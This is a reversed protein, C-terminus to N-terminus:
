GMQRMAFKLSWNCDLAPETSSGYPPSTRVDGFGNHQGSPFYLNISVVLKYYALTTLSNNYMANNEVQCTHLTLSDLMSGVVWPLSSSNIAYLKLSPTITVGDQPYFMHSHIFSGRVLHLTENQSLAVVTSGIDYDDSTDGSYDKIPIVRLDRYSWTFTKQYNHLNDEEIRNMDVSSVVNGAGWDVKPATWDAM